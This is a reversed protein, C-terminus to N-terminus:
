SMPHGVSVLYVSRASRGYELVRVRGRGCRAGPPSQPSHPSTLGKKKRTEVFSAVAGLIVAKEPVPQVDM